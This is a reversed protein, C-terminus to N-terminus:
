WFEGVFAFLPLTSLVAHFFFCFVLFLFCPDLTVHIYVGSLDDVSLDSLDSM